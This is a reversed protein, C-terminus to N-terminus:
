PGVRGLLSRAGSAQGPFETAKELHPRAEDPRGLEIACYGMMLWGRGFEPDLDCARGFAALAAEFDEDLYELDGLLSWLGATEKQSLATKLTTRARDHDHAGLWASALREFEEV